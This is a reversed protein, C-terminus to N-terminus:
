FFFDIRAIILCFIFFRIGKRRGPARPHVHFRIRIGRIPVYNPPGGAASGTSVDTLRALRALNAPGKQNWRVALVSLACSAGRTAEKPGHVLVRM